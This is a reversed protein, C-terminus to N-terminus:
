DLPKTTEQQQLPHMNNMCGNYNELFFKPPSTKKKCVLKKRFFPLTEYFNCFHANVVQIWTSKIFICCNNKTYDLLM